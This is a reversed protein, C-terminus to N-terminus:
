SPPTLYRSALNRRFHSTAQTKEGHSENLRVIAQSHNCAPSKLPCAQGRGFHRITYSQGSKVSSHVASQSSLSGALWARVQHCRGFWRSCARTRANATSLQAMPPIGRQDVILHHKGGLKGRSPPNRSAYDPKAMIVVGLLFQMVLGTVFSHGSGLEPPREQDAALTRLEDEDVPSASLVEMNNM